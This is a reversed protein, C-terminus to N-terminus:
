PGASIRIPCPNKSYLISAILSMYACFLLQFTHHVSPSHFFYLVFSAKFFLDENAFAMLGHEIFCFSAEITPM